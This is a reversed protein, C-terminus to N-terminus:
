RCHRVKFVVINLDKTRCFYSSLTIGSGLLVLVNWLFIYFYIYVTFFFCFFCSKYTLRITREQTRGFCKGNIKCLCELFLFNIELIHCRLHGPNELIWLRVQLLASAWDWVLSPLLVGTSHPLNNWICPCMLGFHLERQLWALSM